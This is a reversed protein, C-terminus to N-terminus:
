GGQHELAEAAVDLKPKVDNQYAAAGAVPVLAIKAVTATRPIGATDWVHDPVSLADKVVVGATVLHTVLLSVLAGKVVVSGKGGQDDTGGTDAKAGKRRAVAGGHRDATAVPLLAVVPRLDTGAIEQPVELTEIRAM